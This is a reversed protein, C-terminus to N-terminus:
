AMEPFVRMAESVCMMVHYLIRTPATPDLVTGDRGLRNRWSGTEASLYREFMMALHREALARGDADGLLEARACFAKVAETQPWLLKSDTILTGDPAAEDFAAAPFAPDTEVGHDMAFRYLRGATERVGTDGSLRGYHLLLWVWEFHHGPERIRGAPAPAEAFDRGMFERLTGTGTDLFRTHFLEVIAGARTLWDDEGTTEYLALLAELLHMHPNQRRPLPYPDSRDNEHYGGYEPDALADDMFEMTKRAWALPRHDKTARHLWALGFLVFSHDYFDKMTDAGEGAPDGDRGVRHFFGGDKWDWMNDILFDYAAMAAMTTSSDAGLLRGHAFSYIQRAQVLAAKPAEVVPNANEDVVGVFGGFDHDRATEAWFPLCREILWPRLAPM